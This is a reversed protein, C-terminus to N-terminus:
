VNSVTKEMDEPDHWIHFCRCLYEPRDTQENMRKPIGQFPGSDDPVMQEHKRVGYKRAHWPGPTYAGKGRGGWWPGGYTRGYGTGPDSPAKEKYRVDSCPNKRAETKADENGEEKEDAEDTPSEMGPSPSATAVETEALPFM